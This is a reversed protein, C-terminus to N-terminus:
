KQVLRQLATTIRSAYQVPDMSPVEVKNKDPKFAERVKDFVTSIKQRIDNKDFTNIIEASAVRKQTAADLHLKVHYHIVQWDQLVKIDAMLRKWMEDDITVHEADSVPVAALKGDKGDYKNTPGNGDVQIYMSPKAPLAYASLVLNTSVIKSKFFGTDTVTVAAVFKEMLTGKSDGSTLFATYRALGDTLFHEMQADTFMRASIVLGRDLFVRNNSDNAIVAAFNMQKWEHGHTHAFHNFVSPCHMVFTKKDM